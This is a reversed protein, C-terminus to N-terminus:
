GCHGSVLWGIDDTSWCKRIEIRGHEKSIDESYDCKTRDIFYSKAETFLTGQNGKLALFYDGGKDIIKEAIPKQCNLADTTVVAGEINLLELVAPIATSENTKNNIDVQALVIGCKTALAHLLHVGSSRIRKGDLAIIEKGGNKYFWAAFEILFKEM